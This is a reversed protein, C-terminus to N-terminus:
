IRFSQRQKYTLSRWAWELPGFRFYKLWIPSVILQVIWVSLVIVVQGVRGIENYYGLGTGYFIFSGILSQSIYNSFAMRGAAAFPRMLHRLTDVKCLLMVVGIYAGSVLLSAWYNYQTGIFFSYFPEWDHAFTERIGLVVVPVGVLAGLVIMYVYQKTPRAASFVGLKYLAMGVLMLGGARWIGWFFLVFTQWAL